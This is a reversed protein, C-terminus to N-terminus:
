CFTLILATSFGDGTNNVQNRTFHISIRVTTRQLASHLHAIHNRSTGWIHYNELSQLAVVVFMRRM